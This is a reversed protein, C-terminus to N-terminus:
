NQCNKSLSTITSINPKRQQLGNAKKDSDGDIEDADAHIQGAINPVDQFLRTKNISSTSPKLRVENRKIMENISKLSRTPNLDNFAFKLKNRQNQFPQLFSQNSTLSSNPMSFPNQPM